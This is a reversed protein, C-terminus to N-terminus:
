YMCFLERKKFPKGYETEFLLNPYNNVTGTDGAFDIVSGKQLSVHIQPQHYWTM